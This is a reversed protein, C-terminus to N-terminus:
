EEAERAKIRVLKCNEYHCSLSESVCLSKIRGRKEGGEREGAALAGLWVVAPSPKRAQIWNIREGNLQDEARILACVNLEIQHRSSQIWVQSARHWSPFFSFRTGAAHAAHCVSDVPHHDCQRHQHFSNVKITCWSVRM